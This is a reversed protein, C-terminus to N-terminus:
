DLDPDAEGDAQYYLKAPIKIEPEPNGGDFYKVINEITLRAMQDPYQIPDAFIKGEKIFQKGAKEGDFGVIKVQREMGAQKLATYAGIAAPDNIAFIGALDKNSPLYEDTSKKAPIEKGESPKNAAIIIKGSERDKNYADIVETFGDVRQNCSDATTFDLVLVKGGAEGLAEIMAQGALKGGGYNDTEVHSVVKATKDTCAVDVTFVPIGAANAKRISAGANESECPSMVIAKVKQTIFDDIQRDQTEAKDAGDVVIVKYGHKAAEEKLTNGIINFFPNSLDKASYAIVGKTEKDASSDGGCSAILLSAACAAIALIQRKM